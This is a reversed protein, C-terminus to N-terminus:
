PRGRSTSLPERSLGAVRQYLDLYRGAMAEPDLRDAAVTRRGRAALAARLRPDGAVDQLAAALAPASGPEAFRVGETLQEELGSVRSAVVPLGATMAELASIPLGEWDTALVLFDSAAVLRHVDSREGLLRVAPGLRRREVDREVRARTPGDGALLLTAGGGISDWAAVLLDHRKQEVMRALSLGVVADPAIGLESRARDRPYPALPEVANAVVDVRAEPFGRRVLRDAVYPSVAAVHAGAWRLIRTTLSLDSEAVGHLTTLIPVGPGFALRAAVTAKPNHAHVLDPVDDRLRSATRLLAAPSRGELPVPVHAVGGSRLDAVRFGPASAVTVEHGHRAAARAVTVAVVEAGGAGLVPIVTAIRM